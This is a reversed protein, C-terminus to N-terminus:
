SCSSILKRGEAKEIRSSCREKGVEKFPKDEYFRKRTKETEIKISDFLKEDKVANFLYKNQQQICKKNYYNM